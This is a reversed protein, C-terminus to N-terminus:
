TSFFKMSLNRMDTQIAQLKSLIQRQTLHLEFHGIHMSMNTANGKLHIWAAVMGEINIGHNSITGPVISSMMELFSDYDQVNQMNLDRVALFEQIDHNACITEFEHRSILGMKDSELKTILQRVEDQDIKAQLRHECVLERITPQSCRMAKEMFVSTIINWVSVTFFAIMLHCAAGAVMGSPELLVYIGM